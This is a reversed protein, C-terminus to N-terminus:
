SSPLRRACSTAPWPFIRCAPQAPSPFRRSGRARLCTSRENASRPTPAEVWPFKDYVATGLVGAAAGAQEIRAAPIEAHLEALRVEGTHPDELRDLLSRLIRFSSPVIGSADGSHVGEDLIEVALEGVVIGRLSTTHWLRDYDGCGSDLCVVLDPSGIREALHDVYAPLDPSGSEESTEILM